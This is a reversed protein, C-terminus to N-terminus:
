LYLSCHGNLIAMILFDVFFLSYFSHPSLPLRSFQQHCPLSTCSSHFASHLNKLFSFASNGCWGAIGSKPVYGTHASPRETTDSEETVGYVTTRQGRQEYFKGPLIVPSPQWRRRWPIKRVWPSFGHKQCRRRQCASEEGRCWRLLGLWMDLPFEVKFLYVCGLTWLLVIWLLWSMSAVQVGGVYLRILFLRYTVCM